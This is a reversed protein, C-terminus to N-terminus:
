LKLARRLKEGVVKEAEDAKSDLAPRLFPRPSIGPHQVSSVFEGGILLAQATDPTIEHAQAGVELSAGYYHDKDWSVGFEVRTRTHKTKESHLSRALAGTRRPAREAADKRIIEAGAQVADDLIRAAEDEAAKLAAMIQEAGEIRVILRNGAM